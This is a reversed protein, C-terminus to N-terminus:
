KGHQQAGTMYVEPRTPSFTLSQYVILIYFSMSLSYAMHLFHDLGLLSLGFKVSLFLNILIGILMVSKISIKMENIRDSHAQLPDKQKSVIIYNVIIIFLINSSIAYYIAFNRIIEPTESLKALVVFIILTTLTFGYLLFMSPTIFDTLKRAQLYAVNTDQPNSQRMEKHFTIISYVVLAYPTLQLVSYGWIAMIINSWSLLLDPQQMFIVVLGIIGILFIFINSLNFKMTINKISLTTDPYLKPYKNRPFRKILHTIRKNLLIPIILSVLVVQGLLILYLLNQHSM